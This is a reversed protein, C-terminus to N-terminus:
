RDMILNIMSILQFIYILHKDNRGEFSIQLVTSQVLGFAEVSQGIDHASPLFVSLLVIM